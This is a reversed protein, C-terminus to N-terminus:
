SERVLEKLLDDLDDFSEPAANGVRFRLVTWGDDSVMKYNGDLRGRVVLGIRLPPPVTLLKTRVKEDLIFKGTTDLAWITKKVRWIFDPFFQSSSGSKIPLPIGDDVRDKNRVWVHKLRDLAKAFEIEDNNFAKSDYYSHGANTFPKKVNGSPQYPGVVYDHNEPDVLQTLKVHNEYERVIDVAVQRYHDLAISKYCATQSLKETTFLVPDMANLCNKSLMRVQEQLFAGVAIRMNELLDITHQKVDGTRVSVM